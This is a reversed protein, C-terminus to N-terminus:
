EESYSLERVGTIVGKESYIAKIMLGEPSYEYTTDTDYSVTGDKETITSKTFNLYISPNLVRDQSILYPKREDEYIAVETDYYDGQLNKYQSITTLKNKEYTYHQILNIDVKGNGYYASSIKGEKNYEFKNIHRLEGISDTVITKTILNNTYEYTTKTKLAGNEDWLKNVLKGENNYIFDNTIILKELTNLDSGKRVSRVLNTDAYTYNITYNWTTSEKSTYKENILLYKMNKKESNTIVFQYYIRGITVSAIAPASSTEYRLTSFSAVGDVTFKYIVSDKSNEIETVAYEVTKNDFINSFSITRTKPYFIISVPRPEAGESTETSKSTLTLKLLKEGYFAKYRTQTPKIDAYSPENDKIPEIVEVVEEQSEDSSCSTLSIALVLFFMWKKLKMFKYKNNMLGNKM